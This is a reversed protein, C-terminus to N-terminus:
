AFYNGEEVTGLTVFICERVEVGTLRKPTIRLARSGIGSVTGQVRSNGVGRCMGLSM